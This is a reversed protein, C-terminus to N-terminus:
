HHHSGDSCHSDHSSCNNNSTHSAEEHHFYGFVSDSDASQYCDESISAADDATGSAMYQTGDSQPKSIMVGNKIMELEKEYMAITEDIKEQTWTFYGDHNTWARSGLCSQLEIKENELWEKYEDYSWWEINGTFGTYFDAPCETFNQGDTSYYTKGDCNGVICITDVISGVTDSNKGFRDNEAASTCLTAATTFILAASIVVTFLTTKKTKMISKIREESSDTSFHSTLGSSRSISEALQILTFAYDSRKDAGCKMVVAEDCCLEIDRNYFLYLLWVAPNFWHVSLVAAAFLKRLNDWRRIHILEHCLVFYMASNDANAMSSPLLIVPSVIGYNLPSGITNSQRIRIRRAFRQNKILESAYRNECPLSLRFNRLMIVYSVAFFLMFMLVGIVYIITLVLIDHSQRTAEVVANNALAGSLISGATEGSPLPVAIVPKKQRSFLAALNYISAESSLSLPIILRLMALEWLMAFTRKPLKDLAFLRLLLIVIIMIGGHLSMQSISM